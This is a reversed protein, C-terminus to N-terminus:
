NNIIIKYISNLNSNKPHEFKTFFEQNISSSPMISSPFEKLENKYNTIKMPKFSYFKKQKQNKNNLKNMYNLEILKDNIKKSIEQFSPNKKIINLENDSLSSKNNNNKINSKLQSSKPSLIKRKEESFILKPQIYNITQKIKNKKKLEKNLGNTLLNNNNKNKKYKLLEEKKHLIFKNFSNYNEDIDEHYKKYKARLIEKIEDGLNRYTNITNNKSQKKQSFSLSNLSNNKEIKDWKEELEKLLSKSINLSNNINLNKQSEVNEENNIINSLNVLDDLKESM